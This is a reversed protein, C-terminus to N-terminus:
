PMVDGLTGGFSSNLLNVDLGAKGSVVDISAKAEETGVSEDYILELIDGDSMSFSTNYALYLQYNGPVGVFSGKTTSGSGGGTAFILTQDRSTNIVALLRKPDFEPYVSFDIVSSSAFFLYETTPLMRKM